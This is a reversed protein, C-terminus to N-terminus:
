RASCTAQRGERTIASRASLPHAVYRGVLFRHIWGLLSPVAGLGALEGALAATEAADPLCARDVAHERVLRYVRAPDGGVAAEFARPAREWLLRGPYSSLHGDALDKALDALADARQIAWGWTFFGEEEARALPRAADAPLTGVMAIMALWAGSIRRTVRAVEGRTVSAPHSTLTAVADVQIEWGEEIMALLRERRAAEGGLDSLARGLRAALACRPEDNAASAARVSALTPALFARTRARLEARDTSAGGHFRAGDIVQDDVKTLLSLMAAALGVDSAREVGGLARYTEVGLLGLGACLARSRPEVLGAPDAADVATGIEALCRDGEAILDATWDRPLRRM